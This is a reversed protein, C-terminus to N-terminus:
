EGSRERALPSRSTRTIEYQGHRTVGVIDLHRALCHDVITTNVEQSEHDTKVFRAPVVDVIQTEIRIDEGDSTHVVFEATTPESEARDGRFRITRDVSVVSAGKADGRHVAGDWVTTDGITLEWWAVSQGPAHHFWGFQWEDVKAWDRVGWSHDRMGKANVEYTKDGITLHGSFIGFQDYHVDFVTSWLPSVPEYRYAPSCPTFAIDWNAPVLDPEMGSEVQKRPPLMLEHPVRTGPTDGATNPVRVMAGSFTMHWIGTLPDQKYEFGASRHVTGDDYRGVKDWDVLVARQDGWVGSFVGSHNKAPREGMSHFLGIGADDDFFEFYYSERWLPDTGPEHAAREIAFDM